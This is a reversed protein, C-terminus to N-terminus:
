SDQCRVLGWNVNIRKFIENEGMETIEGAIRSIWNNECIQITQTTATTFSSGDTRRRQFWGCQTGMWRLSAMAMKRSVTDFSKELHVFVVAM